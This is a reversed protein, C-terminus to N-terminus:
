PQRSVRNMSGASISNLSFGSDKQLRSVSTEKDNSVGERRRKGETVLVDIQMNEKDLQAVIEEGFNRLKTRTDERSDLRVHKTLPNGNSDRLFRDKETLM